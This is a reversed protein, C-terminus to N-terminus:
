FNQPEIVLVDLYDKLLDDDVHYDDGTMELYAYHKPLTIEPMSLHKKLPPGNVHSSYSGAHPLPYDMRTPMSYSHSLSVNNIHNFAPLREECGFPIENVANAVTNYDPSGFNMVTAENNGGTPSLMGTKNMLAVSHELDPEETRGRKKHYTRELLPDSSKSNKGSSVLGGPSRLERMSKDAKRPSGRHKRPKSENILTNRLYRLFLDESDYEARSAANYYCGAEMTLALDLEKQTCEQRLKCSISDGGGREMEGDITASFAMSDKLIKCILAVKAWRMQVDSEGSRWQQGNSGSGAM